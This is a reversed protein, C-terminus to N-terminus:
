ETPIKSRRRRIVGFIFIFRRYPGESIWLGRRPEGPQVRREYTRNIAQKVAFNRKSARAMLM